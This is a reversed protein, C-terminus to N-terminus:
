FEMMRRIERIKAALRVDSPAWHIKDQLFDAADATLRKINDLREPESSSIQGLWAALRVEWDGTSKKGPKRRLESSLAATPPEPSAGAIPYLADFQKRDVYFWVLREQDVPLRRGNQWFAPELEQYIQKGDRLGMGRIYSRLRGGCLLEDLDDEALVGSGLMDKLRELARDFRLWRSASFIPKESSRKRRKPVTPKRGKAM